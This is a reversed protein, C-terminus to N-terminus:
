ARPPPPRRDVETSSDCILLVAGLGALGFWPIWRKVIM